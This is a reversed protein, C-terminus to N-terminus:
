EEQSQPLDFKCDHLFGCQEEGVVGTFIIRNVGNQEYNLKPLTRKNEVIILQGM